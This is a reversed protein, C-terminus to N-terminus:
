CEYCAHAGRERELWKCIKEGLPYADYYNCDGYGWMTSNITRGLDMSYGSEGQVRYVYISCSYSGCSAEYFFNQTQCALGNRISRDMGSAVDIDLLDKGNANDGLFQIKATPFGNALIYADITKQLNAVVNTAEAFRTKEVAVQYQPVAIAALIGIILVVVLLEILTFGKTTKTINDDQVQNMIKSSQQQQKYVVQTSSELDLKCHDRKIFSRKNSKKM